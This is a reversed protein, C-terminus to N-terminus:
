KIFVIKSVVSETGTETSSIIHYVGSAVRRGQADRGNWTFGGGVSTGSYVLQGTSSTIKIVANDTLGKITIYGNYDQKVPNPYVLVNNKKLSQEPETAEAAYSVLGKDTGIMIEGTNDNIAISYINDSLIPSNKTTFHHITEIGDSSVLYIGNNSTGIWKRNGGDVAIATIAIGNLLYDAFNTGDNRPVKIQTFQFDNNGYQDPDSIVFLGLNTGIWITGTKDEAMCYFEEPNYTTGDQNIIQTKFTAIDDATNDITGNYNLCLLGGPMRRSNIWVRNKSDFMIFDCTPNKKINECYIKSWIGDKKYIKIITDVENNLMWLNGEHDYTTGSIRVYYFPNIDNPLITQLNSNKYNYQKIFKGNKFEYLGTGAASVFHHDPDNPDQAISTTNEYNMKTQSTIKSGDEFNTWKNDEYYMATGPNYIENYNHLGGAILLRNGQYKLYYTYDRIPSNPIIAEVASELQNSANIKFGQLGNYEQCAWYIGNAYTLEKFSNQQTIKNYENAKSFIYILQNNGVILRNNALSTFTFNGKVVSQFSSTQEDYKYLYSNGTAFLQNDFIKFCKIKTDNSKSWNNKDLLNDSIKGTYIGNETAAYITNNWEIASFVQQDLNYTNSIEEKEMNITVIGFDTALFAKNGSLSLNNIKKNQIYSEKLYSLNTIEDNLNLFDINGNEYILIIKELSKNYDVFIINYDNLSTTKDYTIIESDTTHYAFLNGNCLTYIKNEVPVNATANHYSAYIHWSGTEQAFLCIFYFFAIISLIIRKM